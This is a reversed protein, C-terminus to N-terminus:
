GEAVVSEDTSTDSAIAANPMHAIWKLLYNGVRGGIAGQFKFDPSRLWNSLLEYGVQTLTVNKSSRYKTLVIAGDEVLAAFIEHYDSVKEKALTLPQIKGKAFPNGVGALAWLIFLVRTKARQIKNEENGSLAM